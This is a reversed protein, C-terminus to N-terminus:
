LKKWVYINEGYENQRKSKKLPITELAEGFLGICVSEYIEKNVNLIFYGSNLLCEYSKEFLPAYFKENMEVKDKYVNNEQYKELFYYPPSTFVMDYKPLISYDFDVADKFYMEVETKSKTYKLFKKMEEYPKELSTNIEIGIYKPIDLSAAGILRGGWGACIDLVCTPKYKKYIEVAVLPRFINIASICINYVEKWV